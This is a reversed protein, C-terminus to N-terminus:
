WGTSTRASCTACRACCWGGSRTYCRQRRDRAHVRQWTRVLFDMDAKLTESTRGECVTRVIFGGGPPRYREVFDRLRRREREREIRRSIGVHDLTPMYVLYRGPLAVHTTLRAGKTGIPDKSVQVVIEQGEKLLEQIPPLAARGRGGGAEPPPADDEEAGEPLKLHDPYIDGVYLFAARDLGVEVFAAQMGPLVRVVRGLYVNGVYGREDGRDVLLEAVRGNEVLAVRVERGTVNCIIETGM